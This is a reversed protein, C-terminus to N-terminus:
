MEKDDGGTGFTTGTSALGDAQGPTGPVGGPAQDSMRTAEGTTVPTETMGSGSDDAYGARDSMENGADAPLGGQSDRDHSDDQTM